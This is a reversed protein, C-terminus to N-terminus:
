AMLSLRSSPLQLLKSLKSSLLVHSSYKLKVSLPKTLLIAKGYPLLYNRAYGAKVKVLDGMNGLKLINDTLIVEVTTAM